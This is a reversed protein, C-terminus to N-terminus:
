DHIEKHQELIWQCAKFIVKPETDANYVDFWDDKRAIAVCNTKNINTELTIEYKHLLWEKCKHALEYININNGTYKYTKTSYCLTNEDEHSPITVDVNLVASLLEKTIM